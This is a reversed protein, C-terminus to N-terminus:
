KSLKQIKSLTKGRPRSYIHEVSKQTRFSQQSFHTHIVNTINDESILQVSM